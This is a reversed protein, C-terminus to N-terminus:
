EVNVIVADVFKENRLKAAAVRHNGDILYLEGNYQFLVVKTNMAEIANKLPKEFVFQQIVNIKGIDIPSTDIQNIL